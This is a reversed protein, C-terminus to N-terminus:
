CNYVKFLQNNDSRVDKTYEWNSICEKWTKTRFWRKAYVYKSSSYQDEKVARTIYMRGLVSVCVSGEIM